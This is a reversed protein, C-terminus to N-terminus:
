EYSIIGKKLLNRGCEHLYYRVEFMNLAVEKLWGFLSLRSKVGLLLFWVQIVGKLM